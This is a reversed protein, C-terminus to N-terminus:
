GDIVSRLTGQTLYVLIGVSTINALIAAWGPAMKGILFSLFIFAAIYVVVGTGRAYIAREPKDAQM